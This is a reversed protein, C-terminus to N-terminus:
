PPIGPPARLWGADPAYDWAVVEGAQTVSAWAYFNTTSMDLGPPGGDLFTFLMTPPLPVAGPPGEMPGREDPHSFEVPFGYPAGVQEDTEGTALDSVWIRFDGATPADNNIGIVYDAKADGTTDLVLGYAILTASPDLAEARPPWAGLEMAWHIQTPTGTTVRAIDVWRQGADREPETWVGVLDDGLAMPPAALEGSDDARLPGTWGPPQGPEHDESASPNVVEGLVRIGAALAVVVVVAGILVLALPRATRGDM